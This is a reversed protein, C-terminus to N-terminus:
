LADVRQSDASEIGNHSSEPKATLGISRVLVGDSGSFVVPYKDMRGDLDDGKRCLLYAAPIQHDFQNLFALIGSETLPPHSHYGSELVPRGTRFSVECIEDGIILASEDTNGMIWEDVESAVTSSRDTLFYRWGAPSFPMGRYLISLALISVCIAYASRGVVLGFRSLLFHVSWAALVILPLYAPCLYRTGLNEFQYMTSMLLQFVVHGAGYISFMVVVQFIPSKVADSQMTRRTAILVAAAITLIALTLPLDTRLTGVLLRINSILGTASPPREPGFPRGVIMINRLFWPGSVLAFSCGLALFRILAVPRKLHGEIFLRQLVVVLAVPLLVLGVYRTLLGLAAAAGGLMLWLLRGDRLHMTSCLLFVMVIAIYPPESWALRFFYMNRIALLVILASLRALGRPVVAASVATSLFTIVVISLITVLRVADVIGLGAYQPIALLCPYVPPWLFAPDPISSSNLNMHYTVFRGEQAISKSMDAYHISDLSFAPKRTVSFGIFLSLVILAISFSFRPACRNQLIDANM